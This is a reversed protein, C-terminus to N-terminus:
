AVYKTGSLVHGPSRVFITLLAAESRTLPVERGGPDVFICGALDLRCGESCVVAPGNDDGPNPRPAM